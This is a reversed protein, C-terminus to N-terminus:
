ARNRNVASRLAQALARVNPENLVTEHAGPTAVVEVGGAALQSWGMDWAHTCFLPQARARFLTVRGPYTKPVYAKLARYHTEYFQRRREPMRSVDLVEDVSLGPAWGLKRGWVRLKRLFESLLEGPRRSGLDDRIWHPLNTVFGALFEVSWRVSRYLTVPGDDIIGLLAVQEGQTLLQQAMEFAVTGGSSYGGIHYPGQPQRARLAAVYVSAMAEITELPQERGDVGVAQLGILPQDPALHQGLRAYSLVEGGIAHVCYFPPNAGHPQISVL